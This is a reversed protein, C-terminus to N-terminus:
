ELERLIDDLKEKTLGKKKAQTQADHIIEELTRKDDLVRQLMAMVDDIEQQSMNMLRSALREDVSLSVTKM